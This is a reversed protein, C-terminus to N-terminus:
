LLKATMKKYYIPLAMYLKKYHEPLRDHYPVNETIRQCHCYPFRNPLAITMNKYYNPPWKRTIFQCHWAYNRSISKCDTMTHCMKYLEKAIAYYIQFRNPTAKTMKKNYNPPWKRTIIQHDNEQVTIIQRDNEQLLKTTMEKYNNPPWKRTCYYNPPWKRTIVQCDKEQLLKATRKKYYNPPWKLYKRFLSCIEPLSCKTVGYRHLCIITLLTVLWLSISNLAGHM